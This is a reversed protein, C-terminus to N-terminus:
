EKESVKFESKEWSVEIKYVHNLAGDIRKKGKYRKVQFGEDRLKRALISTVPKLAVDYYDQNTHSITYTCMFRGAEAATAANSSIKLYYDEVLEPIRAQVKDLRKQETKKKVDEEQQRKGVAQKSVKRLQKATTM